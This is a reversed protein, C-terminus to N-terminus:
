LKVQQMERKKPASWIAAKASKKGSQQTCWNGEILSAKM